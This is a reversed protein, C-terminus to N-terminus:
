GPAAPTDKGGGLFVAESVAVRGYVGMNSDTMLGTWVLVATDSVACGGTYTGAPSM